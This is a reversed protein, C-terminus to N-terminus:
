KTGKWNRATVEGVTRTFEILFDADCFKEVFIQCACVLEQLDRDGAFYAMEVVLRGESLSNLWYANTRYRKDLASPLCPECPDQGLLKQAQCAYIAVDCCADIKAARRQLRAIRETARNQPHGALAVNEFGRIKQRSKLLAHALEGVEEVCGLFMDEATTLDGFQEKQWDFLKKLLTAYEAERLLYDSSKVYDSESSM